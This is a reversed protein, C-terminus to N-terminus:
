TDRSQESNSLVVKLWSVDVIPNIGLFITTFTSSWGNQLLIM